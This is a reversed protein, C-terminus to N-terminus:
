SCAQTYGVTTGGLKRSTCEGQLKEDNAWVTGGFDRFIVEPDAHCPDEQSCIENNAHINNTVLLLTVATALLM